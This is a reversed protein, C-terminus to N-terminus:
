YVLWDKGNSYPGSSDSWYQDSAGGRGAPGQGYPGSGSLNPAGSTGYAGGVHGIPGQASVELSDEEGWTKFDAPNNPTHNWANSSQQAKAMPQGSLTSKWLDTGDNRPGPNPQMSSERKIGLGDSIATDWSNDQKVNEGGWGDQAFLAERVSQLSELHKSTSTSAGGTGSQGVAGVSNNPVESNTPLGKGAAAAWSTNTQQTPM